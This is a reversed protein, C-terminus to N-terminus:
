YIPYALRVATKGVFLRKSPMVLVTEKYPAKIEENGDYGIIEDKTLHDFGQWDKVFRFNETKITIAQGVKLFQMKLSNTSNSIYELGFDNHMIGTNRIFRIMTEIAIPESSKEWHQGCEVLLANKKSLPNSFGEFDRMRMGEKHGSDIITPMNMGVEKALDLGKKEMGAMMLPVCPKQMSHIDLLFDAEAIIPRVLKARNYESTKVRSEDDLVGPAWLRNFDEEVWRTRNPNKPDFSLYAEVNMFGLSLKGNIPREQKKFFWDLAIAGCPENGHVVASVFVHPGQKGSDFTHVYDVGVNGSKYSTIDPAILEVPFENEYDLRIDSM